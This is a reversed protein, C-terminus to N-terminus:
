LCSTRLRSTRRPVLQRRARKGPSPDSRSCSILRERGQRRPPRFQPKPLCQHPTPSILKWRNYSFFYILFFYRPVARKRMEKGLLQRIARGEQKDAWHRVYDFCVLATEGRPSEFTPDAGKDLLLKIGALNGNYAAIMLANRESYISLADIDGCGDIMRTMIDLRQARMFEGTYASMRCFELVAEHFTNLTIKAGRELLHDVMKTDGKSVAYFLATKDHKDAV